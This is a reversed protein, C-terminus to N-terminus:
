DKPEVINEVVNVAFTLGTAQEIAKTANEIVESNIMDPLAADDPITISAELRPREFIADPMSVELLVSVEDWDLSPQNVCLRCSGNKKIVLHKKIIM